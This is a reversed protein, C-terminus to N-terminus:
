VVGICFFNNIILTGTVVDTSAAAEEPVMSYVRPTLLPRGPQAPPNGSSSGIVAKGKEQATPPARRQQQNHQNGPKPYTANPTVRTTTRNPCQNAFHGM